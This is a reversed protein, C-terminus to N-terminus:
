VDDGNNHAGALPNVRSHVRPAAGDNRAQQLDDIWDQLREIFYTRQKPTRVRDVGLIFRVVATRYASFEAPLPMMTWAPFAIAVVNIDSRASRVLNVFQRQRERRYVLWKELTDPIRESERALSEQQRDDLPGIWDRVMRLIRRTRDRRREEDPLALREEWKENSESLAQELHRIQDDDIGAFLSAGDAAFRVALAARLEEFERYTQEVEAETVEDSARQQVRQLLAIIKDLEGNRHWRLHESLRERAFDHQAATLDFYHDIEWL